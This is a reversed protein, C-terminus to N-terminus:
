IGIPFDRRHTARLFAEVVVPNYQKGSGKKIDEVAEEHTFVRGYPRKSTMADYSDAVTLISSELPIEKGRLGNPYGGGAYQEHHALIIKAPESLFEIDKIIHSGMAPHQKIQEWEADDLRGKKRLINEDVGIKGIDHLLAAYKLQECRKVSLKMESAIVACIAEVRKSHGITYIDKTEIAAALSQVTQLYNRQMDKYAVFVYRALMFPAYFLLVFFWGFSTYVSTILVGLLGVTVLGLVSWLLNSVWMKFASVHYKLSMYIGVVVTNVFTSVIIAAILAGAEGNIRAIVTNFPVGDSIGMPRGGLLYFVGACSTISLVYVSSNFLTIWPKTNFIHKYHGDIKTVSGIISFAAAWVAAAPGLTLLACILVASTVSVSNNKDFDVSQAEALVSLLILFLLSPIDSVPNYLNIIAFVAFGLLIVAATYLNKAKGAM